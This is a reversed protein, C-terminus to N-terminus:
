REGGQGRHVFGDEDLGGLRQGQAHEAFGTRLIHARTFWANRRHVLRRGESSSRVSTSWNSWLRRSRSRRPSSLAPSMAKEVKVLGESMGASAVGLSTAVHAIVERTNSVEVFGDGLVPGPRGGGFEM